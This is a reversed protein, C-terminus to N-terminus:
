CRSYQQEDRSMLGGDIQDRVAYEREQTVGINQLAQAPFRIENNARDFFHQAIFWRDLQQRLTSGELVDGYRTRDNWLTRRQCEGKRSSVTIRLLKHVWFAEIWLAFLIRMQAKAAADM